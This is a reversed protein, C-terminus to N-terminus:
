GGQVIVKREAKRMWLRGLAVLAALWFVQLAIGRIADAGAINGSYIRLPMNQMAAFPTLEIVARFAPPFFPLPLIAGALFDVAAATIRRVGSSDLTFFVSVYVLMSFAVVVCLALAASLLFLLFQGASPPLTMRLPGPIFLAVLLIPLSRLVCKAVRTAATQSFWRGYLDLPRVMEYAVAGSSIAWFIEYEYFWTMFLALFAQQVWIYNVTQQFTMPFADPNARYFAWFMLLEMFGWAYQTVVGALAAARYQIANAFRIRFVSLYAKM